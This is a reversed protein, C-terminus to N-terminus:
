AAKAAPSTWKALIMEIEAEKAVVESDLKLISDELADIEARLTAIKRIDIESRPMPADPPTPPPTPVPAPPPTVVKFSGAKLATDLTAFFAADTEVDFSEWGGSNGYSFLTTGKIIGQAILPMYILNYVEILRRMYYDGDWGRARYGNRKDTTADVGFESLIVRPPEIGLTRCRALMFNIRGWQFPEEPGYEHLGLFITDRYQSCLKLIPDFRADWETGNTNLAPQGMGFNGITLSIGRRVAEKITMVCWLILEEIDAASTKESALPENLAYLSINGRGLHGWKNLFDNPSAIDTRHQPDNPPPLHYGADHDHKVRGVILTNPYKAAFQQIYPTQDEKPPPNDDVMVVCVAPKIADMREYLKGIDKVYRLHINFGFPNQNM